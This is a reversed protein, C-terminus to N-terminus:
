PNLCPFLNKKYFFKSKLSDINHTCGEWSLVEKKFKKAFAM